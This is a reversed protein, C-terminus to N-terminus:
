VAEAVTADAQTGADEQVLEYVVGRKNFAEIFPQPINSDTIIFSVEELGAYTALCAHGFKSSDTLVYSEDASRIMARKVEADLPNPTSHGHTLTTGSTGLFARDAHFNELTRVAVPGILTLSHNRVQGGVLLLEYGARALELSAPVSNTIVYLSRFRGVLAAALSLTTTGGDLIITDGEHIHEIAARAIGEKQGAKLQVREIFSINFRSRHSFVAGGYTRQLLGQEELEALDKRITVQSVAFREALSEVKVNGEHELLRLIQHRRDEATAFLSPDTEPKLTSEIHDQLSLLGLSMKLCFRKFSALHENRIASLRYGIIAGHDGM